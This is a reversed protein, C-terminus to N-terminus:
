ECNDFQFLRLIGMAPVELVRLSGTFYQSVRHGALKFPCLDFNWSLLIIGEVFERTGTTFILCWMSCTAVSTVCNPNCATSM